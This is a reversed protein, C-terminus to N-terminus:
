RFLVVPILRQNHISKKPYKKHGQDGSSRQRAWSGDRLRTDLRETKRGIDGSGIIVVSEHQSFELGGMAIHQAL